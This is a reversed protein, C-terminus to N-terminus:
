AFQKKVPFHYFLYQFVATLLVIKLLETCEIQVDYGNATMAISSKKSVNIHHKNMLVDIYPRVKIISDESVGQKREGFCM